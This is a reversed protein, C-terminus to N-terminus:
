KNSENIIKGEQKKIWERCEELAKGEENYDGEEFITPSEFVVLGNKELQYRVFGPSATTITLFNYEKEDM